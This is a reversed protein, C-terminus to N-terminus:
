EDGSLVAELNIVTGEFDECAAELVAFDIYRPRDVEKGNTDVPYRFTFSGPDADSIIRVLEDHPVLHQDVVEQGTYGLHEFATSQSVLQKCGGWLEVLRHSSTKPEGLVDYLTKIGVELRHRQLFVAALGAQDQLAGIEELHENILRTLYGIGMFQAMWGEAWETQIWHPQRGGDPDPFLALELSM